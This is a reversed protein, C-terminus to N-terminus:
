IQFKAPPGFILGKVGMKGIIVKEFSYKLNINGILSISELNIKKKWDLLCAKKKQSLSPVNHACKVLSFTNNLMQWDSIGFKGKQLSISSRLLSYFYKYLASDKLKGHRKVNFIMLFSFSFPPLPFFQKNIM